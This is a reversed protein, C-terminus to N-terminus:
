VDLVREIYIAQLVDAIEDFTLSYYVSGNEYLLKDNLDLLSIGSKNQVKDSIQKLWNPSNPQDAQPTFGLLFNNKDYIRDKKPIFIDCAVGLCCYGKKDQLHHKTQKYEGSRLANVWTMIQKKSPEM